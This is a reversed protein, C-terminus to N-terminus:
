QNGADPADQLKPEVGNPSAPSPIALAEGQGGTAAQMAISQSPGSPPATAPRPMNIQAEIRKITPILCRFQNFMLLNLLVSWLLLSCLLMLGFRKSRWSFLLGGGVLGVGILISAFTDPRLVDRTKPFLASWTVGLTLLMAAATM